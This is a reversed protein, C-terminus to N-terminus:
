KTLLDLSEMDRLYMKIPDDSTYNMSPSIRKKRRGPKDNREITSVGQKSDKLGTYVLQEAM